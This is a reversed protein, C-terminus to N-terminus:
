HWTIVGPMFNGSVPESGGNSAVAAIVATLVGLVVVGAGVGLWFAWEEYLPTELRESGSSQSSQIPQTPASAMGLFVHTREGAGVQVEARALTSGGRSATVVHRGPMLPVERQLWTADLPESDVAVEADSLEPAREVSLRGAERRVRSALDESLQAVDPSTTPDAAVADLQTRAERYRGLEVYATALNYRIPPAARLELAAEFAAAANNWRQQQSHEVGEAFLARARATREEDTRPDEAPSTPGEDPDNREPAPAGEPPPEQAFARM